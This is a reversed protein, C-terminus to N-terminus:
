ESNQKVSKCNVQSIPWTFQIAPRTGAMPAKVHIDQRNVDENGTKGIQLDVNEEPTYFKRIEHTKNQKM